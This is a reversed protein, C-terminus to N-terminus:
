GNFKKRCMLGCIVGSFVSPYLLLWYEEINRGLVLWAISGALIGGIAGSLAGLIIAALRGVETIKFIRKFAIAAHSFIFGALAAPAAGLFYAIPLGLLALPGLGIVFPAISILPALYAFKVVVSQIAHEPHSVALLRVGATLRVPTRLV